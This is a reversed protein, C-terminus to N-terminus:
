KIEKVEEKVKKMEETTPRLKRLEGQIIKRVDDETLQKGLELNPQNLLMLEQRTKVKPFKSRCDPCKSDDDLVGPRFTSNCLICQPEVDAM